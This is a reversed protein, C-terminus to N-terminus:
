TVGKPKGPSSVGRLQEPMKGFFDEVDVPTNDGGQINAQADIESGSECGVCLLTATLFVTAFFRTM